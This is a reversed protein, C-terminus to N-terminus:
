KCYSASLFLLWSVLCWSINFLSNKSDGDIRRLSRNIFSVSSYTKLGTILEGYPELCSCLNGTFSFICLLCSYTCAHHKCVCARKFVARCLELCVSCANWCLKNRCLCCIRCCRKISLSRERQYSIVCISRTRYRHIYPRLIDHLVFIAAKRSLKRVVRSDELESKMVNRCICCTKNQFCGLVLTRCNDGDLCTERILRTVSGIRFVM